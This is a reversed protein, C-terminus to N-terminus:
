NTPSERTPSTSPMASTSTAHAASTSSTEGAAALHARLDAFARDRASTFAPLDSATIAEGAPLRKMELVPNVHVGNKIIRYDLHPGTAAGTQGVRGILDGQEVRAGAQIGPGFSSLHLYETEYGGAHRIRVMRGAEGAWGAMEIVGSAVASVRTGYPAGFDVGLHPRNIGLVPHFRNPSFGSTVRPDFPLPSKLFQRRLSRGALDFWDPKGDDGIYQVASLARAGLILTAAKVDGYGIFEGNRKVRDFLVEVRDGVQLDSNFDVEGGFVEALKGALQINEGFAGLAASLSNNQRTIEARVATPVYEKPVPLVEVDFTAAPEGPVNRFVVRLLNDADIEYRFERFLGDLTRTIRYAREARLNRPNFVSRVARVLSSSIEAPVDQQRLLSELTANQPVVSEFVSGDDALQVDRGQVAPRPRGSPQCAVLLLVVAALQAYRTKGNVFGPFELVLGLAPQYQVAHTAQSM